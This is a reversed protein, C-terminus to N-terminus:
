PLPKRLVQLLRGVTQQQLVCKLITEQRTMARYGCFTRPISRFDSWIPLNSASYILADGDPDTATITFQLLQGESVQKDGIPDLVPPRNVNGVTITITESASMPPTGNDTVAFLLDYNGAQFYDPTWTFKQSVPNISAGAPLNSASYTLTDGGPDSGTITFQLLQGESVQKDGIPDLVPPRNVTLNPSFELKYYDALRFSNAGYMADFAAQDFRIIPDVHASVVSDYSDFPPGATGAYAIVLAYLDIVYPNNPNNPPLYMTVSDSFSDEYVRGWDRLRSFRSAPFNPDGSVSAGISYKGTGQSISAAGTASFFTPIYQPFWPPLGTLEVNFYIRASSVASAYGYANFGKATVQADAFVANFGTNGISEAKFSSEGYMTTWSDQDVATIMSLPGPVPGSDYANSTTTRGAQVYVETTALPFTQADAFPIGLVLVGIITWCALGRSWDISCFM